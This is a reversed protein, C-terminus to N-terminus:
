WWYILTKITKTQASPTFPRLVAVLITATSVTLGEDSTVSRKTEYNQNRNSKAAGLRCSGAGYNRCRNPVLWPQDSVECKKLRDPACIYNNWKQVRLYQHIWDAHGQHIESNQVMIPVLNTLMLRHTLWDTLRCLRGAALWDITEVKGCWDSLM